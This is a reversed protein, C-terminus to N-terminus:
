AARLAPENNPAVTLAPLDAARKEEEIAMLRRSIEAVRAADLTPFMQHSRETITSM